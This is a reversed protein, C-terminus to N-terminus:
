VDSVPRPTIGVPVTQSPEMEANSVPAHVVVTGMPSVSVALLTPSSPRTFYRASWPGELNREFDFGKRVDEKDLISARCQQGEPSRNLSQQGEPSWLEDASFQGMRAFAIEASATRPAARTALVPTTQAKIDHPSSRTRAVLIGSTSSSTSSSSWAAAAAAAGDGAGKAAVEGSTTSAAETSTVQAGSASMGSAAANRNHRRRFRREENTRQSKIKPSPTRRVEYM